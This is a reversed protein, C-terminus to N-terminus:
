RITKAKVFNGSADFAVAYKTNNADIVVVYAVITGGQSVSFAKEFVYNPYTQSLYDAAVSPLAALEIGALIGNSKTPLEVRKVFTGDATFVTAFLGNNKSLVVISSDRNRFAKVLTDAAYNTTFYTAIASPLSTLAISDRHKGDRNEFLGGHHHGPGNLDSKERQELVKVFSGSSDFQLGVPKDNYYVIVVYGTVVSSSSKIIFAKSFTAGNYNDAIYSAVSAPLDNQAISDRKEGHGCPQVIYVSDTESAATASAAVAITSSATTATDSNSTTALENKQCSAFVFAASSLVFLARISRVKMKM